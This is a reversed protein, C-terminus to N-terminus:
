AAAPSVAYDIATEMSLGQGQAWQAAFAAQGLRTKVEALEREYEVQEQLSMPVNIHARLSAAAGFLRAARELQGQGRAVFAFSELQHAVASRHGLKQWGRITQRYAAEAEQYHQEYRQMHALESQIMTIRHTDGLQEYLPLSQLLLARAHPYDGRLVANLSAAFNANTAGWSIPNAGLLRLAEAEYATATEFDNKVRSYYQALVSLSVGLSYPDHGQRALSLSEELAPWAVAPDGLMTQLVGSVALEIVLMRDDHLARALRSAAQSAQLAAPNDNFYALAAKTQWANAELRMQRLGAEGALRPLQEARALAESTWTIGEVSRGGRFWFNMLAGVLRLASDTDHALGWELAARVNDYERELRPLWDVVQSGEILPASLEALGVFYALHQQRLADYEGTAVLRDRAYQRLTELLRYRTEPGEEDVIVLSKNVLQTLLDLVDLEANIAEAAEFTWGTFVALRRLLTREPESLLDYSWDIMARLTQQRPLATRSGGTLLKFRDDLRAAIQDVSFIAV